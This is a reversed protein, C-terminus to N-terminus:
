ISSFLYTPFYSAKLSILDNFVTGFPEFIIPCSVMKKLRSNTALRLLIDELETIAIQVSIKIDTRNKYKKPLDSDLSCIFVSNQSDELNIWNEGNQIFPSLRVAKFFYLNQVGYKDKLEKIQKSETNM